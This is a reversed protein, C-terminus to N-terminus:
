PQGGAAAFRGQSLWGDVFDFARRTTDGYEPKCPTFVHTAGEVSAYSKDASGLHDFIIEGPMILYHCSMTLVLSPVTIGQAMAPTSNYASAWDVGTIDDATIAYDPRTRIASAALFRRVTTNQAMVDLSRLAEGASRGAPARVSQIVTQVSSGDAKLLLHARKTHAALAIDPQYLRAGSSRVGMGRIVLPEDDSFDGKGAEIAHLRELAHDVIHANDQAQAAYFRKVFGAAYSAKHGAPDYGNAPSFMDLSANRAPGGGAIAPDVASMQHFAGLTPDLLIVGDLKALGELGKAKCPYIKEPGSCFSPGKESVAGYLAALHGGGSHGILVVRTVGPQRRLWSVAQSISPLYADPNAERFDPDGRYNVMMIPYGRAAMQRGIPDNFNNRSPHTFILAIGSGAGTKMTVPRYYLGEGQGPMRIYQTTFRDTQIPGTPAARREGAAGGEEQAHLPMAALLALAAACAYRRKM